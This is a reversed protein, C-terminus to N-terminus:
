PVGASGSKEGRSIQTMVTDSLVSISASQPQNVVLTTKGSPSTCDLKRKLRMQTDQSGGQMVVQLPEERTRADSGEATKAQDEASQRELEAEEM